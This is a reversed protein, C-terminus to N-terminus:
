NIVLIETSSVLSLVRPTHLDNIAFVKVEYQGEDEPMWSFGVVTSCGSVLSGSQLAIYVFEYHSNEITLLTLFPSGKLLIRENNEVITSIAVQQGVRIKHDTFNNGNADTIRPNTLSFTSWGNALGPTLAFRWDAQHPGYAAKVTYLNYPFDAPITTDIWLPFNYVFSGDRLNLAAYDSKIMTGNRDQIQILVKSGYRNEDVIDLRVLGSILIHDDIQDWGLYNNYYDKQTTIWIPPQVALCIANADSISPILFLPPSIGIAILLLKLRSSILLGFLWIISILKM